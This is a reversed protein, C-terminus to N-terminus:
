GDGRLWADLDALVQVEDLAGVDRGSRMQAALQEWASSPVRQWPSILWGRWRLLATMIVSVSVYVALAVACTKM